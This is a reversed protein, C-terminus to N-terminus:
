HEISVELLIEFQKWLLFYIKFSWKLIQLLEEKFNTYLFFIFPITRIYIHFKKILITWNKNWANVIEDQLDFDKFLIWLSKVIVIFVSILLLFVDQISRPCGVSIFGFRDSLTSLFLQNIWIIHQMRDLILLRNCSYKKCFWIFSLREQRRYAQSYVIVNKMHWVNKRTAHRYLRLFAILWKNVITLENVLLYILIPYRWRWCKRNINQVYVYIM